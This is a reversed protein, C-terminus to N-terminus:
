HGVVVIFFPNDFSRTLLFIRCITLSGSAPSGFSCV